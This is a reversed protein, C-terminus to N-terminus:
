DRHGPLPPVLQHVGSSAKGSDEETQQNAQILGVSSPEVRQDRLLCVRLPPGSEGLWTVVGPRFQKPIGNPGDLAAPLVWSGTNHLFGGDPLPWAPEDELPGSRHTHGTIVHAADIRLRRVLETAAAPGNTSIVELSFTEDFEADLIRNVARVVAPAGRGWARRKDQGLRVGQAAASRWARESPRTIPAALGIQALTFGLRYIGALVREYDAPQTREPLGGRVRLSAAAAVCELRPVRRHCDM